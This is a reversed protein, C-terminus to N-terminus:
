KDKFLRTARSTLLSEAQVYGMVSSNNRYETMAIADGLPTAQRAAETLYDNRLSLAGWDGPLGALGARRQVIRAVADGSLPANTVQDQKRVPRFVPGTLAPAATLWAELAQAAESSLPKEHIKGDTELAYRLTGDDMRRLDEIALSVIESRRRADGDWAFLLLAKDRKGRLGDTCTALLAKLYESTLVTKKRVGKGLRFEVMGAERLLLTVAPASCPNDWQHLKHWKALVSLRHCVTSLALPGSKGKVKLRCLTQDIEAPLLHQWAGEPTPRALHDVIFQLVIALPVAGDGLARGYRLGLWGEWYALASQYSRVTNVSTGAALFAEAAEQGYSNM